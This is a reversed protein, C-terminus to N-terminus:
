VVKVSKRLRSLLVVRSAVSEDITEYGSEECIKEGFERVADHRPMSDSTIRLQAGGVFMAAKVEVYTCNAINILKAYGKPNTMNHGELITLRLVTPCSFSPLLEITKNLREWSDRLLSRSVRKHTYEDPASVSVYLQTPESLNALHNPETGNTVVFATLGKGKIIDIMESLRSYLLPEGSLSIAFHRPEMAENWKKWNVQRHSLPKYGTLIRRQEFICEDVITEPDDAKGYGLTMQDWSLNHDEPMTRWCYICQNTCWIVSPTCQICRHSEIGYFKHKYCYEGKVLSNHLWRCKKVASHRGVIHYKQRKLVARIDNPIVIEHSKSIKLM